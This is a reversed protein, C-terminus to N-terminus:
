GIDTLSLAGRGVEGFGEAYGTGVGLEVAREPPTVEKQETDRQQASAAGGVTVISAVISAVIIERRMADEVHLHTKTRVERPSCRARRMSKTCPKRSARHRM